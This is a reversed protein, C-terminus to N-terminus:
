AQPMTTPATTFATALPMRGVGLHDYHGSFIIQEEAKGKGPLYGLVNTLTHTTKNVVVEIEIRDEPVLNIGYFGIGRAGPTTATSTSRKLYQKLRAFFATPINNIVVMLPKESPEASAFAFIKPNETLNQLQEGALFEGVTGKFSYSGTGPPLLLVSDPLVMSNNVKVYISREEYSTLPFEQRYSNAGPLYQFGAAKMEAELFRVAKQMSPRLPDRGELSDATLVTLIRTAEALTIDASAKPKTQAVAQLTALVCLTLLLHHRM